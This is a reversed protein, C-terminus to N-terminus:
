KLLYTVPNSDNLGFIIRNGFIEVSRVNGDLHLGSQWQPLYSFGGKGDGLVVVGHNADYRSFKIRTFTNNGALVLDKKGDKNIDMAAIAM